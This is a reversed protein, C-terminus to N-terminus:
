LFMFKNLKFLLTQFLGLHEFDLRFDPKLVHFCYLYANTLCPQKVDEEGSGLGRYVSPFIVKAPSFPVVTSNGM